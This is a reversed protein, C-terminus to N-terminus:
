LDNEKYDSDGQNQHHWTLRRNAGLGHVFIIDAVASASSFINVLGVQAESTKKGRNFIKMLRKMWYFM